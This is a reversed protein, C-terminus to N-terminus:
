GLFQQQQQQLQQQQQQQQQQLQQQQMQQMLMARQQEAARQKEKAIRLNENMREFDKECRALEINDVLIGCLQIQNNVGYANATEDVEDDTDDIVIVERGSKDLTNAQRKAPTKSPSKTPSTVTDTSYMSRRITSEVLVVRVPKEREKGTVANIASKVVNYAKFIDGTIVNSEKIGRDGWTDLFYNWKEKAKALDNLAEYKDEFEAKDMENKGTIPRYITVYKAAKNVNNMKDIALLIQITPGRKTIYFGYHGGTVEQVANELLLTAEEFSIKTVYRVKTAKVDSTQDEPNRWIVREINDADTITNKYVVIGQDYEKLKKAAHILQDMIDAMSDFLSTQILSPIGLIRNLFKKVDVKKVEEVSYGVGVYKLM